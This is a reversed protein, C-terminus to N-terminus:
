PRPGASAWVQYWRSLSDVGSEKGHGLLLLGPISVRSSLTSFATEGQHILHSSRTWNEIESAAADDDDDDDDVAIVCLVDSRWSM